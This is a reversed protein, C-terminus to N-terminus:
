QQAPPAPSLINNDGMWDAMRQPWSKLTTLKSRNGMNFGHSGKAFMHAEVPSENAARYKAAARAEASGLAFLHRAIVDETKAKARTSRCPQLGVFLCATRSIVLWGKEYRVGKM